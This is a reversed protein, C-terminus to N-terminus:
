EADLRALLDKVAAELQRDRGAVEDEPTQVVQLHPRAGHHEMDTGDALYWGRFPVRVTAGDILSHSRTSIVGGYTQNGVLTGRELTRFAHALIESNSFSKENALMNMPQTYRPADLRDQPYHGRTAPDVGAPVTYAHEPAMISTLIRDTTHGGANNRVDIILGERGSAAAYLHAQFTELSAQNMAQIHIYGLRGDSLAHVQDRAEDRFRDYRLQAKDGFDVPTVLAHHGIQQGDIGRELTLLVEQGVTGRLHRLLTDRPGLPQGNVATIVDGQQLPTASRDAPGDTLVADVRYGHRDEGLSVRSSDIGLRGSPERLASAPGPNSVGLHSAALEGLMRNVVDSFESPTRASAVLPRYEAVLEPWDLGKDARYFQEDLLRAVEDFKQRSEAQLDIRLRDSIDLFRHEGNALKVSQARGGAVYIAQEGKLDLQQVQLGATVPRLRRRDSGDWTMVVLGEGMSYFLFRDGAPSMENGVQHTPQNTVRQVRRWAGELDLDNWSATEMVRPTDTTALPARGRNRAAADRYYQNLERPSYRDLERDLHVRFLDYSGGRNSIFSLIRGDASWRPNLDNRPHRTINVPAHSGDAPVIFINSSYDLDNRALALMSGDPSWRWEMSDDWGEMLRREAGSELDLVMLDGRGRRFALQRGDPSPSVQRDQYKTAVVPRVSFSIADHWRAPDRDPVVDPQPDVVAPSDEPLPSVAAPEDPQPDVPDPEAPLQPLAPAPIAGPETPDVPAFPDEPDGSAAAPREGDAEVAPLSTDDENAQSTLTPRATATPLTPSERVEERTLAVTAGHISQSGDGDHVFYLTVGDPSWAIDQHRAHTDATVLRTVGHADVSRIYVRGYAVYAMVRGDPSLAAESVARDVRQLREQDHGDQGAHLTIPEPTAADANLDLRLLQNRIQLVATSGDASVDFHQLDHERLETVATVPREPDSLDMRYLNVTDHRRDSMFLLTDDDQWRAMGDDGEWGTLQEFQGTSRDHLWLNMADPGRYHRRSWNHYHGGRTFTLRQGDPSLRPESGFADHLRAHEGGEPHLAYPREDRYVDGELLGSFLIRVDGDATVGHAPNRIFRDSYTLQTLGTGDPRVRWLNLYGDRMSSFVVSQGDPSWSSHLDDQQHRTLRTATGGATPATWLDGAWSFTLTSGDPSLAPFRPLDVQALQALPAAGPALALILLLLATVRRSIWFM